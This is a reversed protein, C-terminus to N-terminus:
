INEHFLKIIKEARKKWSIDKVVNKIKLLKEESWTRQAREIAKLFEEHTDAIFVIESFRKVSPLATSVVPKGTALYEYFKLPDSALSHPEYNRPLILVDFQHLFHPVQAYPKSGLFSVRHHNRLKSLLEHPVASEIIPGVLVLTGKKIHEAIKLMLEFDLWSTIAGVFGILPKDLSKLEDIPQGYAPCYTFKEVDLGNPLWNVTTAYKKKLKEVLFESVATVLTANSLIHSLQRDLINKEQEGIGPFGINDDLVDFITWKPSLASFTEYSQTVGGSSLYLITEERWESGLLSSILRDLNKMAWTNKLKGFGLSAPIVELPPTCVIVDGCERYRWTIQFSYKQAKARRFGVSPNLFIKKVNEFSKTMMRMTDSIELHHWPYPYMGLVIINKLKM